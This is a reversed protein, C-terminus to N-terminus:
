YLKILQRMEKIEIQRLEMDRGPKYTGGAVWIEEETVITTGNFKDLADDLLTFANEWSSGDNLGSASADVYTVQAQLTSILLLTTVSLSLLTSKKVM